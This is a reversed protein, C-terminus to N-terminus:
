IRESQFQTRQDLRHRVYLLWERCLLSGCREFFACGPNRWGFEESLVIDSIRSKVHPALLDATDTSFLATNQLKRLFLVVLEILGAM